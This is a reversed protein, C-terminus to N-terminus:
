YVFTQVYSVTNKPGTTRTTIRIQPTQGAVPCGPGDCFEQPPKVHQGDKVEPIGSFLCAATQIPQNETRCMRQIIYRTTNGSGDTGALVTRVNDWTADDTLIITPDLSSHYGPIVAPCGPDGLDDVGNTGPARAARTALCTLNFAHAPDNLVNLGANAAQTATLWTIASEVGSDGSTTASQKFAMNGAILTSTDVSRILAVAALSMALLAILTFFLVVGRQRVLHMQGFRSQTLTKM